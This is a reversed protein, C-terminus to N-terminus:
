KLCLFDRKRTTQSATISGTTLPVTLQDFSYFRVPNRLIQTGGPSAGSRSLRPLAFAKLNVYCSSVQQNRTM